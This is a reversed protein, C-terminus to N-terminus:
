ASAVTLPLAAIPVGVVIKRKELGKLKDSFVEIEEFGVKHSASRLRGAFILERAERKTRAYNRDLLWLVPDLFQDPTRRMAKRLKNAKKTLISRHAM